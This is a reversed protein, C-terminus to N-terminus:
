IPQTRGLGSDVGYDPTAVTGAPRPKPRPQNSEWDQWEASSLARRQHRPIVRPLQGPPLHFGASVYWSSAQSGILGCWNYVIEPGEAMPKWKVPRGVPPVTLVGNQAAVLANVGAVISLSEDDWSLANFRELAECVVAVAAAGLASAAVMNNRIARAGIVHHRRRARGSVIVTNEVTFGPGEILRALTPGQSDELGGLSDLTLPCVPPLPCLDDASIEFPIGHSEAFAAAERVMRRAHQEPTQFIGRSDKRSQAVKPARAQTECRRCRSRVYLPPRSLDPSFASLAPCCLCGPCWKHGEPAEPPKM